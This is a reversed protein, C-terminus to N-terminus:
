LQPEEKKEAFQKLAQNAFVQFAALTSAHTFAAMFGLHEISMLGLVGAVLTAGTVVLLKYKGMMDSFKPFKKLLLFGVQILVAVGGLVSFGSAGGMSNLLSDIDSYDKMVIVDSGAAQAFLGMLPMVLFITFFAIIKNM